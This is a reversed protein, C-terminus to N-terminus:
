ARQAPSCLSRISHAAKAAGSWDYTFGDSVVYYSVQNPFLVLSIGGYGSLFPVWVPESCGVLKGVDRAWFGNQYRYGPLAAELGRDSPDRQMGAALTGPDVLATGDVAGGAQLFEAIRVLDGRQFTLGYGVFPQRVADRTRRTYNSVPSLGLRRWIPEVLLDRHIDAPSTLASLAAGLVYTDTTHYVWRKGPADRRAFAECAIAIREAHTSAALFRETAPSNEDSENADSVYRGTTMDLANELTVEGWDRCQPVLHAVRRQMTGPRLLEARMLALGGFLSKALSYSPLPLTDCYPHPGFRTPCASTYHRGDIAMGFLTLDSRRVPDPLKMQGVAPYRRVLDGISSSQHSHESRFAAAVQRADALKGPTYRVTARGWGDFQFYACTESGIQWAADGTSGGPAYRFLLLGYHTCNANKEQLAFPIAGLNQGPMRDAWVRGPEIILDWLPHTGEIVGRRMPVLADGVQIFDFALEPLPDDRFTARLSQARGFRDRVIRATGGATDDIELHGALRGAAAVRGVPRAFEATAAPLRSIVPAALSPAGAAVLALATWRFM